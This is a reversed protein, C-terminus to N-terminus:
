WRKKYRLKRQTQVAFGDMILMKLMISMTVSTEFPGCKLLNRATLAIRFYGKHRSHASVCFCGPPPHADRVSRISDDRPGFASPDAKPKLPAGARSQMRPGFM